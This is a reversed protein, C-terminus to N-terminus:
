SPPPIYQEIQVPPATLRSKPSLVDYLASGIGVVQLLVGILYLLGQPGFRYSSNTHTFLDRLLCSLQIALGASWVGVTRFGPIRQDVSFTKWRRWRGIALLAGYSVVVLLWFSLPAIMFLNGIYISKHM